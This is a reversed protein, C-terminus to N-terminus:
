IETAIAALDQRTVPGTLDAPPISAEANVVALGALIVISQEDRYAAGTVGPEVSAM